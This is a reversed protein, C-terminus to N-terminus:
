LTQTPVLIRGKHQDQLEHQLGGHKGQIYGRTNVGM